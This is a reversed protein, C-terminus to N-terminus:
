LEGFYRLAPNRNLRFLLQQYQIPVSLYDVSSRTEPDRGTSHQFEEKGPLSFRHIGEAVASGPRLSLRAWTRAERIRATPTLKESKMVWEVQPSKENTRVVRQVDLHRLDFPASGDYSATVTDQFRVIEASDRITDKQIGEVHLVSELRQFVPMCDFTLYKGPDSGRQRLHLTLMSIEASETPLLATPNHIEFPLELNFRTREYSHPPTGWQEVTRTFRANKEDIGVVIPTDKLETSLLPQPEGRLLPFPVCATKITAALIITGLTAYIATRLRFRRRHRIGTVVISGLGLLLGGLFGAEGTWDTWRGFSNRFLTGALERSRSFTDGQKGLSLSPDNQWYEILEAQKADVWGTRFGKWAFALMSMAVLAVLSAAAMSRWTRFFGCWLFLAIAIGFFLPVSEAQYFAVAAPHFGRVTLHIAGGILWLGVLIMLTLAKSVALDRRHAPRTVWWNRDGSLPHQGALLAVILFLPLIWFGSPLPVGSYSLPWDQFLDRSFFSWGFWLMLWWRLRLLDFRLHHFVDKM